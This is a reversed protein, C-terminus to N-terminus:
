AEIASKKKFSRAFWPIILTDHITQFKLSLLAKAIVYSSSFAAYSAATCFHESSSFSFSSSFFDFSSWARWMSCRSSCISLRFLISKPCFLSFDFNMQLPCISRSPLTNLSASSNDFREAASGVSSEMVFFDFFVPFCRPLFSSRPSRSVFSITCVSGSSWLFHATQPLLSTGNEFSYMVVRSQM